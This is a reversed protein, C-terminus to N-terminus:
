AGAQPAHARLAEALATCVVDVDEESLLAHMPLTLLRGALAESRPVEARYKGRFCSFEHILPYHVSSQIRREKLFQQVRNRNTGEPLVVPLIHCSAAETEGDFSVVLGPIERLASHYQVTRARRVRTAEELKDLQVLGLASEIETLRYNYGASVVDYTFAHGQQKDLSLATMGHSRNLRVTEAISDDDTTLMGGEGTVLNKNSFFSFCSADGISGIPEGRWRAGPAHAADEVLRAGSTRAISRFADMDCPYGAYHVPVIAKTAPTIKRQVDEPDLLPCSASRVDAFVPVAGCYLVANATAVFTLSPVLVEDGPGVGVARLGLHLAATCSSVAIAHKTGVTEAFRREFEATRKGMTLWRSRLVDIVAREEAEGLDIDSLSIAWPSTETTV